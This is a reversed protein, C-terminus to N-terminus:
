DFRPIDTIINREKVRYKQALKRVAYLLSLYDQNRTKINDEGIVEIVGTWYRKILIVNSPAKYHFDVGMYIEYDLGLWHLIKNRIWQTIRKWM